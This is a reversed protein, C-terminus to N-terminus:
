GMKLGGKFVLSGNKFPNTIKMGETETIATVMGVGEGVRRLSFYKQAM